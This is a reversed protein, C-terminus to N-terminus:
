YFEAVPVCGHRPFSLLAPTKEKVKVEQPIGKTVALKYDLQCGRKSAPEPKHGVAHGLALLVSSCSRVDNPHIHGSAALIDAEVWPRGLASGM